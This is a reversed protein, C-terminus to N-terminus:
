ESAANEEGGVVMSAINNLSWCAHAMAAASQLHTKLVKV